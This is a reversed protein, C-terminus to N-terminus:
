KITHKKTPLRAKQLAFHSYCCTRTNIIFNTDEYKFTLAACSICNNLRTIDDLSILDLRRGAANEGGGLQSKSCDLETIKDVIDKKKQTRFFRNGFTGLM